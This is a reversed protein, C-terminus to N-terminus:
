YITKPLCSHPQLTVLIEEIGESKKKWWLHGTFVEMKHIVKEKFSWYNQGYNVHYFKPNDIVDGNKLTIKWSM